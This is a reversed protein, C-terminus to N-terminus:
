KVGEMEKLAKRALVFGKSYKMFSVGRIDWNIRNDYEKLAKTAIELQEQLREVKKVLQSFHDYSPVPALVEKIDGNDLPVDVDLFYDGEFCLKQIEDDREIVVYYDGKDLEKDKWQETLSKTM